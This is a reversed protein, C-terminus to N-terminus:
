LMPSMPHPPSTYVTHKVLASGYTVSPVLCPHTTSSSHICTCDCLSSALPLWHGKDIKAAWLVSDVHTEVQKPDSIKEVNQFDVCSVANEATTEKTNTIGMSLLHLIWTYVDSCNYLRALTIETSNLGHKICSDFHWCLISFSSRLTWIGWWDRASPLSKLSGVLPFRNQLLQHEIRTLFFNVLSLTDIFTIEPGNLSYEISYVFGMWTSGLEHQCNISYPKQLNWDDRQCPPTLWRFSRNWNSYATSATKVLDSETSPGCAVWVQEFCEGSYLSCYLATDIKLCVSVTLILEWANM